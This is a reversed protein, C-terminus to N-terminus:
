QVTGMENFTKQWEYQEDHSLQTVVRQKHQISLLHKTYITVDEAPLIKSPDNQSPKASLDVRIVDQYYTITDGAVSDITVPMMVGSSFLFDYDDLVKTVEPSKGIIDIM